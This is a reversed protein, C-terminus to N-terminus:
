LQYKRIYVNRLHGEPAGEAIGEKPDDYIITIENEASEFAFCYGSPSLEWKGDCPEVIFPKSWTKGEDESFLLMTHIHGSVCVITGNAMRFLKPMVGWDNIEYPAEWTKGSDYSHACYLPSYVEHGGTRIVSVIHGNGLYLLDPECYGEANVDAIPYTQVDALSSLYEWTKGKDHSIICWSSYLYFRYNWEKDFYPCLTTDTTRQGYMTAIIDGNELEICGHDVVSTHCNGSDGYGFTLDPIDVISFQTDINGSAIDEFCNAYRVCLVFPIKKQNKNVLQKLGTNPALLSIFTGDALQTFGSEFGIDEAISAGDMRQFSAGRNRSILTFPSPGGVPVIVGGDRSITGAQPYHGVGVREHYILRPNAM